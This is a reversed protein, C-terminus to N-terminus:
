LHYNARTRVAERGAVILPDLLPAVPPTYVLDLASLAAVDGGSRIIPILTNARLAAGDPGVLQGGLLRGSRKEFVLRVHLRASGAVLSGRSQQVVDVADCAIGAAIADRETLGVSAAEMGFACVASSPTVGEFRTDGARGATGHPHGGRSAANRAAVRATLYAARATPWHGRKKDPIRTLEVCDGCAWVSPLNTRMRDDVRVAGSGGVKIGAAEALDVRPVIGTAVVLLSCAIREGNVTEVAEVRNAPDRIVRKLRDDRVQVTNGVMRTFHGALGDDLYRDLLLGGPALIIVDHGVSRLAGAVEVGTYGGGVVVVRQSYYSSRRGSKIELAARHIREFDGLSRAPFVFDAGIGEVDPIHSRAGVALIVKDFREKFEQGSMTDYCILQKGRGNLARVETRLRVAVGKEREFAAPTRAAFSDPSQVHGSLLLPMSCSDYSFHGGQEFLVVEAHPDVRKAEAAAAPGAGTGGIM